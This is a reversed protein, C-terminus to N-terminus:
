KTTRRGANLRAFGHIVNRKVCVVAIIDDPHDLGFGMGGVIKSSVEIYAEPASVHYSLMLSDPECVTELWVDPLGKHEPLIRIDGFTGTIRPLIAVGDQLRVSDVKPPYDLWREEEVTAAEETAAEEVVHTTCGTFICALIVAGTVMLRIMM